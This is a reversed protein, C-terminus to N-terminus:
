NNSTTEIELLFKLTSEAKSKIAILQNSSFEPDIEHTGQQFIDIFALTAEVDKKIFEALYDNSINRCIYLLRAKRTPKGENFLAADTTWKNIKKDPALKHLVHTYLERLSVAFHRVKDTNDSNYAEMAGKWMKLLGSDIKPLNEMLLFENEYQIIKKVNEETEVPEEDISIAEILNAAGLYELPIARMITPNVDVYSTPNLEFSKFLGSYSESVELFSDSVQQRLDEALSLKSGIDTLSINSLSQEAFVSYEAAKILGTQLSLELTKKNGIADAIYPSSYIKTLDLATQSFTSVKNINNQFADLYDAHATAVLTPLVLDSGLASISITAQRSWDVMPSYNITSAIDPLYTQFSNLAENQKQFASVASAISNQFAPNDVLTTIENTVVTLRKSYDEICGIAVAYGKLGDNEPM